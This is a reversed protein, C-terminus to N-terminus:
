RDAVLRAPDACSKLQHDCAWGRGLGIILEAPPEPCAWPPLAPFDMSLLDGERQVTLMGSRTAFRVVQCSPELIALLVFASALTAHGCLNVECKPTFWRLQYHDGEPVFFATESLNNEAAVARLGDDDLWNALRCVAAPNGRFPKDTFANVHFLPLSM